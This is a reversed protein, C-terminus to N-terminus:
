DGKTICDQVFQAEHELRRARYSDAIIQMASVVHPHDPWLEGAEIILAHRFVAESEDFRKQRYYSAALLCLLKSLEPPPLDLDSPPPGDESRCIREANLFAIAAEELNGQRNLFLARGLECFGVYLHAGGLFQKYIESSVAIESLAESYRQWAFYLGALYNHRAAIELPQPASKLVEDLAARYFREAKPYDGVIRSLIGTRHYLSLRKQEDPIAAIRRLEGEYDHRPQPPAPCEYNENPVARAINLLRELIHAPGTLTEAENGFWVPNSQQNYGTMRGGICVLAPEAYKIGEKARGREGPAASNGNQCATCSDMLASCMQAAAMRSARLSRRRHVTGPVVREWLCEPCAPPNM